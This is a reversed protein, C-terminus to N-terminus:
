LIVILAVGALTLVGGLVTAMTIKESNKLLLYSMPFVLLPTCLTILAAVSVPIYKLSLILCTQASITLVGSIAFLLVGRRDANRLRGLLQKKDRSFAAHLALGASAGILAGLLAEDWNRIAAGRFINGLSYAISSGLGLVLASQQLRSHGHGGAASNGARGKGGSLGASSAGTMVLLLGAMAMGMGALELTRLAESLFTWAFLATFLPSTIQFISARSPGFQVVSELFFWRGLWTSFAGALLFFAFGESQWVVRDSRWVWQALFLLAAFLVNVSVSVLFGLDLKVRVAAVKTLIINVSFLLLAAGAFLEGALSATLM